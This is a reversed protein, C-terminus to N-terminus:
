SILAPKGTNYQIRESFPLHKLLWNMALATSILDSVLKCNKHLLNYAVIILMFYGLQMDM